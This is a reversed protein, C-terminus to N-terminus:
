LAALVLALGSLAVAGYAVLLTIKGARGEGLVAALGVLVGALAIMSLGVVARGSRDSATDAATAVAIQRDGEAKLDRPATALLGRV